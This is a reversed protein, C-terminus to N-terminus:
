ACRANVNTRGAMKQMQRGGGVAAAAASGGSLSMRSMMKHHSVREEPSRSGASLPPPSPLPSPKLTMETMRPPSPPAKSSSSSSSESTFDFPAYPICPMREHHDEEDSANGMEADVRRVWRCEFRPEPRFPTSPAQRPPSASKLNQPRPEDEESQDSPAHKKRSLRGAPIFEPYSSVDVASSRKARHRRPRGPTPPPSLSRPYAAPLPTVVCDDGDALPPSLPPVAITRPISGSGVGPVAHKHAGQQMRLRLAILPHISGAGARAGEGGQLPLFPIRNAPAQCAAM